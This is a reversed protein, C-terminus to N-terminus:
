GSKSMFYFSLGLYFIQSVAGQIHDIQEGNSFKMESVKINLLIDINLFYITSFLNLM